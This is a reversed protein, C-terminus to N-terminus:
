HSDSARGEFVTTFTGDTFDTEGTANGSGALGAYVGTGNTARFTIDSIARPDSPSSSCSTGSGHFLFGGGSATFTWDATFAVCNHRTPTVTFPVEFTGSDSIAGDVSFTGAGTTPGTFAGRIALVFRRDSNAGASLPLVTLATVVVAALVFGVALLRKM